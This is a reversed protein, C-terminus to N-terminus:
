QMQIFDRKSFNEVIFEKFPQLIGYKVYTVYNYTCNLSYMITFCLRCQIIIFSFRKFNSELCTNVVFLM